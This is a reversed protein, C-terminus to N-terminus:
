PTAPREAFLAAAQRARLREPQTGMAQFYLQMLAIRLNGWSSTFLYQRQEFRTTVRAIDATAV